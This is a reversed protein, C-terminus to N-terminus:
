KVRVSTRSMSSQLGAYAAETSSKTTTDNVPLRALAKLQRRYLTVSRSCLVGLHTLKKWRHDDADPIDVFFLNPGAAILVERPLVTQGLHHMQGDTCLVKMESLAKNLRSDMPELQSAYTDWSERLLLLLDKSANASLFRFESTLRQQPDVLRPKTSVGLSSCIWSVFESERGVARAKTIYSPHLLRMESAPHDAFKSIISTKDPEEVYLDHGGKFCLTTSAQLLLLDRISPINASRPTQFLYIVDDVADVLTRHQLPSYRELIMRCVEARDCNKIGLWQFFAKRSPDQCAEAQVLRIDLGGPITSNLTDEELFIHGDVFPVWRGDRLPILPIDAIWSRNVQHRLLEAMKAHWRRSRTELYSIGNKAVLERLERVLDNIGMNKVGIRYLIPLISADAADYAFSLHCKASTDDEVLPM